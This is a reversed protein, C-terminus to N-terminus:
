TDETQIRRKVVVSAPATVPPDLKVFTRCRIQLHPRFCSASDPRIACRGGSQSPRHRVWRGRLAALFSRYGTNAVLKKGGEALKRQLDALLKARTEADKRAKEENRCVIYRRGLVKVEKVTLDTQGKKRPITLPM